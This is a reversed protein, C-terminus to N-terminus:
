LVFMEVVDDALVYLTARDHAAKPFVALWKCFPSGEQDDLLHELCEGEDM